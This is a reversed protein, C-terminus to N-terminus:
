YLFIRTRTTRENINEPYSNYTTINDFSGPLLFPAETTFQDPPAPNVPSGEETTPASPQQTTPPESPADPEKPPNVAPQQPPTQPPQNSPTTPTKTNPTAPAESQNKPLPSTRPASRVVPNNTHNQRSESAGENSGANLPPTTVTAPTDATPITPQKEKSPPPATQRQDKTDPSRQPSPERGQQDSSSVIQYSGLGAGGTIILLVIILPGMPMRSVRTTFIQLIRMFASVASASISLKTQPIKQWDPKLVKVGIKKSRSANHVAVSRRSLIASSTLQSPRLKKALAPIHGESQERHLKDADGIKTLPPINVDKAKFYSNNIKRVDEIFKKPRYLNYNFKMFYGPSCAKRILKSRDHRFRARGFDWPLVM